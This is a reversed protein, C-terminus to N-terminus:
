PFDEFMWKVALSLKASANLLLSHPVHPLQQKLDVMAIGAPVRDGDLFLAPSPAIFGCQEVLALSSLSSVSETLRHSLPYGSCTFARRAGRPNGLLASRDGVFLRGIRRPPRRTLDIAQAALELLPQESDSPVTINM